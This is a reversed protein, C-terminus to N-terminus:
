PRAAGAENESPLGGAVWALYGVALGMGVLVVWGAATSAESLWRITTSSLGAVALGLVPLVPAGCGTVTCPGTSLGVTGLLVAAVGGRRAGRTGWRPVVPASRAHAWLAVYAGFLLGMLVFRGLDAVTVAFGWEPAISGDAVFWFLALRPLFEIKRSVSVESSMLYEPLRRLWPNLTAYDVPKRAISLVLPPLLIDLLLVLVATGAFIGPRAKVAARLGRGVRIM